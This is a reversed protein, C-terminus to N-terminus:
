PTSDHILEMTFTADVAGIAGTTLYIKTVDVTIPNAFYADANWVLPVNAVLTITDDPAASDNTEITIAFDCALILSKIQSFDIAVNVLMDTTSAPVTIARSDSADGTYSTSYTGGRAGEAWSMNIDHQKAM